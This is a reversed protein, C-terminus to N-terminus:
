KKKGVRCKLTKSYSPTLCIHSYKGLNERLLWTLVSDRYPIFDSKKKKKSSQLVLFSLLQM